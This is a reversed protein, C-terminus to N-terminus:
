LVSQPDVDIVIDGRAPLGLERVAATAAPLNQTKILIHMRHVNSIKAVPAPFPGIVSTAEVTLHLKIDAAAQDALRRAKGADSGQITIKIL